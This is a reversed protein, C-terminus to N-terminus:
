GGGLAVGPGISRLGQLLLLLLLLPVPPLRLLLPLVACCPVACPTLMCCPSLAAPTMSMFGRLLVPLM